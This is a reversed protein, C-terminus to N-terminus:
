RGANSNAASKKVDEFEPSENTMKWEGGERVFKVAIGNPYSETRIEAVATEGAVKENRAECLKNSVNDIESLFEILSTKKEDRMDAELSKLTAQSYVKRIAAEDKRTMADCYAKVVPAVTEARNVTQSEPTRSTALAGGNTNAANNAAGAGSNAAKNAGASNPTTTEGGGCGAFFISFSLITIFFLIQYRM